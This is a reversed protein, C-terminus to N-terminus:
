LRLSRIFDVVLKACEHPRVAAVHFCDGALVVLRSSRIRTQYDRAAASTQLPSDETTVVLTPATINALRDELDMTVVADSLGICSRQDSKGMLEDTWWFIQEPPAGPGLRSSQSEAAWGRVGVAKIRDPVSVLNARVGVGHGRIPSGFVSLSLVHDPFDAALQMSTSGGYKAGVLHFRDIHIAHLLRVVDGAMEATSWTYTEPVPSKGFGPLDPRIVRFTGSLHPVWQSWAISSEAQGHLLVIAVGQEWPPGFWDDEFAIQVGERVEISSTM